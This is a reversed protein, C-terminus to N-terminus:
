NRHTERDSKSHHHKRSKSWSRSRSRSHDRSRHNSTRSEREKERERGEKARERGDRDRERGEKEIERGDRDRQDSRSSGVGDRERSRSRDTHRKDRGRGRDRDQDRDTGGNRDRDREIVKERLESRGDPRHHTETNSRSDKEWNSNVRVSGPGSNSGQSHNRHQDSLREHPVPFHSPVHATNHQQRPPQYAFNDQRNHQKQPPMTSGKNKRPKAQFRNWLHSVSQSFDVKIRRDDVLVNNMKEYAEICSEATEFEIFAYSLSDGTKFDKIIDCQKITGFRSFILELDADTTLSNLKCVFLVEDPPKVDADPIDGTMELVIARSRAEKSRISIDLEAATLSDTKMEVGEEYPIRKKILETEPISRMPSSPPMLANLEDSDPFPDDLVYTHKIRMDQYPRGDTDCYLENIKQLIELGEAIEGFITYKGDLNDLDEGRLTIFFQSRNANEKSQDHAMCVLGVKNMKRSKIIEDKFSSAGDGHMLGYISNGGNGSGTPDGTQCIYNQQVNYFLCGNYYKIKCLKLFNKTALPCEETLLDIVLEGASCELLVAM